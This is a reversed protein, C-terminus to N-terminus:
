FVNKHVRRGLNFGLVIRNELATKGHCAFYVYDSKGFIGPRSAGAV